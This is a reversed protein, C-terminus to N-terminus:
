RGKKARRGRRGARKYRRRRKREKEAAGENKVMQRRETQLKRNMTKHISWEHITKLWEKRIQRCRTDKKNWRERKQHQVLWSNMKKFSRSHNNKFKHLDNISASDNVVWQAVSFGWDTMRVTEEVNVVTMLVWLLYSSCESLLKAPPRRKSRWSFLFVSQM